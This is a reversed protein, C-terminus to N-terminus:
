MCVWINGEDPSPEITIKQPVDVYEIYSGESMDQIVM